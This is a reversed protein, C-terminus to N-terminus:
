LDPALIRATHAPLTADLCGQGAQAPCGSDGVTVTYDPHLRDVLRTGPPFGVTMRTGDRATRAQPAEDSPTAPLQRANLGLGDAGVPGQAEPADSYLAAIAGGAGCPDADPEAGIGSCAALLLCLLVCCSKM